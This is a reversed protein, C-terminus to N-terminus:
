PPRATTIADTMATSTKPGPPAMAVTSCPPTASMAAAAPISQIRAFRTARSRWSEHSQARSAVVIRTIAGRRDSSGATRTTVASARARARASTSSSAVAGPMDPRLRQRRRGGSDKSSISPSATAAGWVFMLGFAVFVVFSEPITSAAGPPVVAEILAVLAALALVIAYLFGWRPKRDGRAAVATVRRGM